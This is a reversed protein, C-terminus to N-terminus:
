PKCKYNYESFNESLPKFCKAIGSELRYGRQYFYLPRPYKSIFNVQDKGAWFDQWEQFTHPDEFLGPAGLRQRDDIYGVLWPADNATVSLVFGPRENFNQIEATEAASILPQKSFVYMGAQTALFVLVAALAIKLKKNQYHIKGLFYAAFLILSLDLYIIVRRYFPLKFAFWLACLLFFIVPLPHNKFKLWFFFGVIGLLLIPWWLALLNQNELFLGTRVYFNNNSVLKEIIERLNFFKYGMPVILMLAGAELALALYSRARLHRYAIYVGLALFYLVATTRHTVLIIASCAALDGWKEEYTFKFALILFPLAVLNKWLFMNYGEAQILSFAVLLAGIVGSTKNINSFYWYVCVGLFASFLLLGENLTVSAPLHFIKGLMFFPSEYGGWVSTMLSEWSFGQVHKAAYLYFGYDYGYASLPAKLLPLVRVIVLVALAGLAWLGYRPNKNENGVVGEM